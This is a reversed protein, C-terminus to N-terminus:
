ISSTGDPESVVSLVSEAILRSASGIKVLRLQKRAIMRYVTPRSVDLMSLVETVRYLM